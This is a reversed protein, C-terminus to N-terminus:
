EYKTIERYDVPPYERVPKNVSDYVDKIADEGSAFFLSLQDPDGNDALENNYSEAELIRSLEFDRRKVLTDKVWKWECFVIPAGDNKLLTLADGCLINKKLIFHASELAKKSTDSKMHKKYAEEFHKYLRDICANTNDQLLEVGYISSLAVISYKEYDPRYKSYLEEVKKLKRDLIAILFNGDGCAPELFTSEINFSEDKVLDLMANVERENTFVEGHDTVREKSKIQSKAM